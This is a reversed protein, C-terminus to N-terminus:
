FPEHWLYWNGHWHRYQDRGRPAPPSTFYAFGGRDIFGSGEVRFHMGNPIPECDVAQMFGVRVPGSAPMSTSMVQVALRDMASKSIWYTAWLPVETVCLLITLALLAPGVVWHRWKMRGTRSHWGHQHTMMFSFGIGRICWIAALTGWIFVCLVVLLFYVEPVSHAYLTLLAVFGCLCHFYKGVPKRLFRGIQSVPKDGTYFTATNGLDFTRGCEPCRFESLGILPYDCTLCRPTKTRLTEVM